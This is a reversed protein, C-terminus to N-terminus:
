TWEKTLDRVLSTIESERIGKLKGDKVVQNGGVFVDKIAHPTLSYVTNSKLNQIPQLSLDDLDLTVFDGRAGVKLEGIPQGLVIGGNKTGMEFVEKATCATADLHKVKQLLSAIRMEDIISTRNNSCAGDTGLAITIGRDLMEKIKTIGDGLFMNSSPNYSLKAKREAMLDLEGEDLWVAHIMVTRENLVGLQDLYRVPTAGHSELTMKREYEGEAVHIHFPTDLEQALKAGAEIMQPSAAHPSHPAPIISIVPDDRFQEHLERTRRVAEPVSEQYSEPAGSWDYMTRALVLRIGLDKAAKIVALDNENGKNHIYFFDCVTTIGNRLMEGFAFLAGVYIGHSDLLKSFKYIGKDRWEFFPRDDCFGRVLSQFSHNHSNVLGPIIAVNGLNKVNDKSKCPGVSKILGSEITIECDSKFEGEFYIKSALYTSKM